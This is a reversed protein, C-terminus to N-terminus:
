GHIEIGYQPAIALLKELDPITPADPRNGPELPTGVQEIFRDFGAPAVHVLMRAPVPGANRLAHRRHRPAFVYAGRAADFPRDDLTFRVAGDLVFFWEDERTHTHPPPGGGPLMLAELLAFAGGTDAGRVILRYEDGAVAFRPAQSPTRTLPLRPLSM